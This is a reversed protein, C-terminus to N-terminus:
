LQMTCSNKKLYYLFSVSVEGFLECLSSFLRFSSLVVRVCFSITSLSFVMKSNSDGFDRLRTLCFVLLPCICMNTLIAMSEDDEDDIDDDADSDDQLPQCKCNSSSFM